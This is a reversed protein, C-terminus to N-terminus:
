LPGTPPAYMHKTKTTMMWFMMFAMMWTKMWIVMKVMINLLLVYAEDAVEEDFDDDQCTTSLNGVESSIHTPSVSWVPLQTLGYIYLVYVYM